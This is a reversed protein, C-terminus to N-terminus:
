LLVSQEYSFLGIIIYYHSADSLNNAPIQKRLRIAMTGTLLPCVCVCVCLYVCLCVCVRLENPM